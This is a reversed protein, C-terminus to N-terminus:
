GAGCACLLWVKALRAEPAGGPVGRSRDSRKLIADTRKKVAGIQDPHTIVYFRRKIM